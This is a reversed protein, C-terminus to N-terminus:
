CEVTPLMYVAYGSINCVHVYDADSWYLAFVYM